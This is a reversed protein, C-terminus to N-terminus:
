TVCNTDVDDVNDHLDPSRFLSPSRFPDDDAIAVDVVFSVSFQVEIVLWCCCVCCRQIYLAM